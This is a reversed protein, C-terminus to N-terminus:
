KWEYNNIHSITYISKIYLNYIDIKVCFHLLNSLHIYNVFMDVFLEDFFFFFLVFLFKIRM